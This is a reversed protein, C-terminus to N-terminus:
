RSIWVDRELAEMFETTYLAAAAKKQLRRENPRIGSDPAEEEPTEPPFGRFRGLRHQPFSMPSM